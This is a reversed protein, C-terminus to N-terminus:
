NILFWKYAPAIKIQKNDLVLSEEQYITIIEGKKLNLKDMAEVLGNIERTRNNENLNYCVQIAKFTNDKKAIFDCEFM